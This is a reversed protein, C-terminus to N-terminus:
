PNKIDLFPSRFNQSTALADRAVHVETATLTESLSPVPQTERIRAMAASQTLDRCRTSLTAIDRKAKRMENESKSLLATQNAIHTRFKEREIEHRANSKKLDSIEFTTAQLADDKLSIQKEFETLKSELVSIKDNRRLIQQEYHTKFATVKGQVQVMEDRIEDSQRESKRLRLLLEANETELTNRKDHADSQDAKQTETVELLELRESNLQEIQTAMNAMRERLSSNERIEIDLDTKVREAKVIHDDKAAVLTENEQEKEKLTAQLDALQHHLREIKIATNSAATKEDKLDSELRTLAYQQAEINTKQSRNESKLLRNEPELRKLVSLGVEAKELFGMLSNIRQQARRYLTEGSEIDSTIRVIDLRLESLNLGESFINTDSKPASSDEVNTIYTDVTIDISPKLDAPSATDMEIEKADTNLADAYPTETDVTETYGDDLSVDDTDEDSPKPLVQMIDENPTDEFPAIWEEIWAENSVASIPAETPAADGENSADDKLAELAPNTESIPSTIDSDLPSEDFLIAELTDVDHPTDLLLEEAETHEDDDEIFLDISLDSVDHDLGIDENIGDRSSFRKFISM